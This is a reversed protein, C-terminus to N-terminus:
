EGTKLRKLFVKEVQRVLRTGLFEKKSLPSVLITYMGMRNGGLIDTFLQDGIMAIETAKTSMLQLAKRFAKRRPKTAKSIAPITLPGILERVRQSKANSVVCVALGAAQMSKIWSIAQEPFQRSKWPIITNDLDIIIGKIGRGRLDQPDIDYVSSVFAQPNLKNFM